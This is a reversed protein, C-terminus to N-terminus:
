KEKSGKKTKTRQRKGGQSLLFIQQPIVKKIRAMSGKRRRKSKGIASLPESQGMVDGKESVVYAAGETIVRGGRM